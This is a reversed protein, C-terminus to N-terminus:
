SWLLIVMAKQLAENFSKEQQLFIQESKLMKDQFEAKIKSSDSMIEISQKKVNDQKSLLLTM